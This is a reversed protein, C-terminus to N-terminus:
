IKLRVIVYAMLGIVTVISGLFIAMIGWCIRLKSEAAELRAWLVEKEKELRTVREKLAQQEKDHTSLCDAIGGLIDQMVTVRAVTSTDRVSIPTREEVFEETLEFVPKQSRSM